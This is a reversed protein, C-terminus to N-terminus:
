RNLVAVRKCLWLDFYRTKGRLEYEEFFVKKFEKSFVQINRDYYSSIQFPQKYTPILWIKVQCSRLAQIPGLIYLFFGNIIYLMSGYM